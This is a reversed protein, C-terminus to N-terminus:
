STQSRGSKMKAGCCNPMMSRYRYAAGAIKAAHTQLRKLPGIVGHDLMVMVLLMILLSAVIATAAHESRTRRFLASLASRPGLRGRNRRDAFCRFPHTFRRCCIATARREADDRPARRTQLGRRRRRLKKDQAAIAAQGVLRGTGDFAMPRASATTAESGHTQFFLRSRATWLPGHRVDYDGCPGSRHPRRNAAVFIDEVHARAQRFQGFITVACTVLVALCVTIVLRDRIGFVFKALDM